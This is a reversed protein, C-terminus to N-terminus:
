RYYSKWVFVVFSRRRDPRLVEEFTGGITMETGEANRWVYRYAGGPRLDIECVPMTWGPPGVMWHPLHRPSTHVDFVLDKPAAVVRTIRVGV